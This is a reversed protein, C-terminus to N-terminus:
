RNEQALFASLTVAFQSPRELNVLHGSGAITELHAGPIEAALSDATRRTEPMDRAGVIVLTPINLKALEAFAGPQLPVEAAVGRLARSWVHVNDTALKRLLPQLAPQQMAPKMFNSELWALGVAATDHRAAAARAHRLWSTDPTAKPDNHWGSVGSSVVVLRNVMDPHVLAFDIAIRGGQSLGVIAARQIGLYELLARLDEHSMYPLDADESRGFGRQDYRVIRHTKSLLVFQEDWMRADLNGGHLLVVPSGTGAVQFWLHTGNVAALGSTDTTPPIVAIPAVTPPLASDRATTPAGTITTDAITATKDSRSANCATSLTFALVPLAKTARYVRAMMTQWVTQM